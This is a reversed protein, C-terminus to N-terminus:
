KNKRPGGSLEDLADLAEDLKEISDSIKTLMQPSWGASDGVKFRQLVTGPKEIRKSFEVLRAIAKDLKEELDKGEKTLNQDEGLKSETFKM